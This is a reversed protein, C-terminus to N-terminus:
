CGRELLIQEAARLQDPTNIGAVEEASIPVAIVKRGQAIAIDVMETLCLEGAENEHMLGINAWLWAGDFAYLGGNIEKVAKQEQTAIKEEAVGLVEGNAARLIRGYGTPDDLIASALTITAGERVHTEMVASITEVRFLPSDGCMVLISGADGAADRACMVAHGSGRQEEQLAYMVRGGLADKVMEAKYGIVVVPHPIGVEALADLIHTVVPRGCVPLLVKPLDSGMRTGKGAALVIAQFGSTSM